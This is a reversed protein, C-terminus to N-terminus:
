GVECLDRYDCRQCGMFSPKAMFEEACVSGIISSEQEHFAAISSEDLIYDITKNDKLFYLSARVPLKSNIEQVTICYLNVPIDEHITNKAIGTSSGTKFDIMVLGGDLQWEIRDIFGKVICGQGTFVVLVPLM